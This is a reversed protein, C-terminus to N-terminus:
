SCEIYITAIFVGYSVGNEKGVVMPLSVNYNGNKEVSFAVDIQNTNETTTFKIIDKFDNELYNKFFNLHDKYDDNYKVTFKGNCVKYISKDEIIELNNFSCFRGNTFILNHFQDLNLPNDLFQETNNEALHDRVFCEPQTCLYYYNNNLNDLSDLNEIDWTADLLCWNGNIKVANWEHDIKEPKVTVEYGNGKSYGVINKINDENYNMAVLLRRILRAFGTCVTEKHPFFIDPDRVQESSLGEPEGYDINKTIWYYALYVKQEEKLNSGKSKLYECFQTLTGKDNNGIGNIISMVQSYMEENLSFVSNSYTNTSTNDNSDEDNTNENDNDNNNENENINPNNETKKKNKNTAVAIIVILFIVFAIIGILISWFLCPRNKSCTRMKSYGNFFCSSIRSCLNCGCKKNYSFTRRNKFNYNNRNEDSFFNM